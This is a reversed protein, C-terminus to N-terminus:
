KLYIQFIANIKILSIISENIRNLVIVLILLVKSMHLHKIKYIVISRINWKSGAHYRVILWVLYSIMTSVCGEKFFDLMIKVKWRSSILKSAISDETILESSSQNHPLSWFVATVMQPQASLFMSLVFAHLSVRANDAALHLWSSLEGARRDTDSMISVRDYYLTRFFFEFTAASRPTRSPPYFNSTIQSEM